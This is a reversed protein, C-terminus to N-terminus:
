ALTAPLSNLVVHQGIAKSATLPTVITWKLKWSRLLNVEMKVEVKVESVETFFMSKHFPVQKECGKHYASQAHHCLLGRSREDLVNFRTDTRSMTTGEVEGWTGLGKSHGLWARGGVARQTIGIAPLCSAVVIAVSGDLAKDAGVLKLNAANGHSRGCAYQEGSRAIGVACTASAIARGEGMLFFKSRCAVILHQQLVVVDIGFHSCSVTNCEHAECKGLGFRCVEDEVNAMLLAFAALHLIGLNPNVFVSANLSPNHRQWFVDLLILWTGVLADIERGNCVLFGFASTDKVAIINLFICGVSMTDAGSSVEVEVCLFVLLYGDLHADGIGRDLVGADVELCFSCVKAEIICFCSRLLSPFLRQSPYSYLGGGDGGVSPPVEWGGEGRRQLPRPLSNLEVGAEIVSQKASTHHAVHIACIGLVVASDPLNGHFIALRLESHEVGISHPASLPVQGLKPSQSVGLVERLEDGGRKLFVLVAAPKGISKGVRLVDRSHSCILQGQHNVCGVLAANAVEVEFKGVFGAQLVLKVALITGSTSALVIRRLSRSRRSM